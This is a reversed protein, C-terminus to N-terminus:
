KLSQYVGIYGSLGFSAKQTLHRSSQWDLSPRDLSCFINEYGFGQIRRQLIPWQYGKRGDELMNQDSYSPTDNLNWFLKEQISCNDFFVFLMGGGKM